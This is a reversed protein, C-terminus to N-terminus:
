GGYMYRWRSKCWAENWARLQQDMVKIPGGIEVPLSKARGDTFVVNIQGEDEPKESWRKHWSAPRHPMTKYPKPQMTIGDNGTAIEDWQFPCRGGDFFCMPHVGAWGIHNEITYVGRDFWLHYVYSSGYVEYFSPRVAPSPSDAGRDSPCRWVNRNKVYPDFVGPAKGAHAGRQPDPAACAINQYDTFDNIPHGQWYGHWVGYPDEIQNYKNAAVASKGDWDYTYMDFAKALQSLNSICQTNRASERAKAFVPFLIAALIAIIAIVVLLEILTFAYRGCVREGPPRTEGSAVDRTGATPEKAIMLM